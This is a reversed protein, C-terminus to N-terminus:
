RVVDNERHRTWGRGLGHQRCRTGLYPYLASHLRAGLISITEPALFKSQLALWEEAVGEFTDRLATKREQREASPDIGEAVLKRVADRRERARVLAVDPYTGLSILKERGYMRYKLRWLRGGTPMVLLYLGREDFLKYARDRPKANRVRIESLFGM